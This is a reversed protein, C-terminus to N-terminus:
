DEHGPYVVDVREANYRRQHWYPYPLPRASAADLRAVEDLSLEWTAAALNDVLQARDRAGIM